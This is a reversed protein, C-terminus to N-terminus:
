KRLIYLHGQVVTIFEDYIEAAAHQLNTTIKDEIFCLLEATKKELSHLNKFAKIKNEAWKFSSLCM